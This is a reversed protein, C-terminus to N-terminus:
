ICIVQGTSALQEAVFAANVERYFERTPDYSVNLLRAPENQSCAPLLCFPALIFALFRKM